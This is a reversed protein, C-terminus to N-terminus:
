RPMETVHFNNVRFVIARTESPAEVPKADSSFGLSYEGPPVTFSLHVPTGGAITKTDKTVWPTVLRVNAGTDHDTSVSMDLTVKKPVLSMNSISWKGQEPCWHWNNDPTGELAWCSPEWTVSIPVMALTADHLNQWEASTYKSRLKAAAAGLNFFSLRGDSSVIPTVGLAQGLQSELSAAGDEYGFRDIYIGSFDTLLLANVMQDVPKDAVERTWADTERGRIAAYSWRLTRSHLYGLLHEYDALKHIPPTEPFPMYPLQFIMANAPVSQEIHKVFDADRAFKAQMAQHPPAMAKTTQDFVGVALLLVLVGLWAIVGIRGRVRQRVSDAVLAVAFLSLFAIFISIRNLSRLQPSVVLAFVSGLGGMTGLLVAALNLASLSSLLEGASRRGRGFLSCGLLLLFGCSGIVGLGAFDNENVLPAHNYEGKLRALAPVRHGTVPLVLQAVKLGYFESESPSRVAVSRNHGHNHFYIFNPLLALAFTLAVVSLLIATSSVAGRRGYRIRALGAAVILFWAGFFAYYVGDLTMIACIALAAVGKRSVFLQGASRQFRFLEEGTGIWLAVMAALPVVYYVALFLHGADGRLFHYPALAFLLSALIGAPYSIGFRRLVFLSSVAALPFSLLFYLNLVLVYNRTFLSILKLALLHTFGFSPYDYTELQGPAGLYRNTYWGNNEVLNKVGAMVAASDHGTYLPGTLDARWLNMVFCVLLLCLLSTGVYAAASRLHSRGRRNADTGRPHGAGSTRGDTERSQHLRKSTLVTPAESM